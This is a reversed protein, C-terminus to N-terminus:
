PMELVAKMVNIVSFAFTLIFCRNKKGEVDVMEIAKTPCDRACLGCSICLDINFMQRGRFGDPVKPKVEPYKQTAPKRFIQSFVERLMPTLEIKKAM